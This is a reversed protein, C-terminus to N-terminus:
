HFFLWHLNLRKRYANLLVSIVIVVINSSIIVVVVMVKKLVYIGVSKNLSNKGRLAYYNIETVEEWVELM